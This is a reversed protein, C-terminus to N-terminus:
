PDIGARSSLGYAFAVFVGFTVVMVTGLASITVLKGEEYFRFIVISLVENGPSYLLISASLERATVVVLLIWGATLGPLMLPAVVRRITQWWSAGSMEASEELERSVRELASVAYRMGYPMFYAVYAILLIWMTGYIPFPLPNRLYVFSVALGIVLGPIVIPLFTLQDLVQRGRYGTRLVIWAAIGTLVMIATAAGVSLIVSNWVSRMFIDEAFLERYNDLTATTLANWSFAQYHGQLSNFVLVLLPLLTTVTFFGAVIGVLWYKSRGLEIPRPRFGKGTVTQYSSGDGRVVRLMWIGLVALIILGISLAGAAATDYPFQKMEYYIRSVLVFTGKPVGLITPTEFSGLSKIAVILFAAAMAPLALPLTIRRLVTLHSAGSALASEELSPDMTRFAVLMFLFVLPVNHTGEVWIMGPMSFVDIVPDGFIASSLTNLLGVNPSALMIWAIIYLVSPIIVPVIAAAVFLPKFPVDTRVVVYALFTGVVLPLLAAGVAFILSNWIMAGIGPTSYARAFAEFGFRGDEFFTNYLLYGVPTLVLYAILLATGILVVGRIMRARDFRPSEVAREAVTHGDTPPSVTVSM